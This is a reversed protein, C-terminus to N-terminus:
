SQENCENQLDFESIFWYYPTVNNSGGIWSRLNIKHHINKVGIFRSGNSRQYLGLVQNITINKILQM